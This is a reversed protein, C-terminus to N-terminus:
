TQQGTQQLVQHQKRQYKRYRLSKKSRQTFHPQICVMTREHHFPTNQIRSETNHCHQNLQRLGLTRHRIDM